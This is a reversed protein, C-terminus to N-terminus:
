QILTKKIEALLDAASGNGNEIDSLSQEWNACLEASKVNELLSAAFTRGNIDLKKYYPMKQFIDAWKIMDNRETFILIWFHCRMQGSLINYRIM